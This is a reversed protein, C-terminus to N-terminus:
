MKKLKDILQDAEYPTLSSFLDYIHDIKSNRFESAAEGVASSVAEDIMDHIEFGNSIDIADIKDSLVEIANAVDGDSRFLAATNLAAHVPGFYRKEKSIAAEAYKKIKKKGEEVSSLDTLDFYITRETVVDFPLRAGDQMIQIIPLNFSHRVGVEYMVNPNLGTLDAIVLDSSFLRNIIDNNINGPLDIEDARTIEFTDALIPRLVHALVADARRREDSGQDGIPTVFFASKM